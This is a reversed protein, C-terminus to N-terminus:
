RDGSAGGRPDHDALPHPHKLPGPVMGLSRGESSEWLGGCSRGGLVPIGAAGGWTYKVGMLGELFVRTGLLGGSAQGRILGEM